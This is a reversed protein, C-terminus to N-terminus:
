QATRSACLFLWESHTCYRRSLLQGRGFPQDYAFPSSWTGSLESGSKESDSPSSWTGSLESDSLESDSNSRESYYEKQVLLARVRVYVCM